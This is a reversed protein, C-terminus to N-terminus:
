CSFNSPFIHERVEHRNTCLKLLCQHDDEQSYWVQGFFYHWLKSSWMWRSMRLLRRWVRNQLSGTCHRRPSAQQSLTLSNKKLLFGTWESFDGGYGIRDLDSIGGIIPQRQQLLYQQRHHKSNQTQIHGVKPRKDNFAQLSGACHRRQPSVQQSLTLSDKKIFFLNAHRWPGPDPDVFVPLLLVPSTFSSQM